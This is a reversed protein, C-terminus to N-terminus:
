SPNQTPEEAEAAARQAEYGAVRESASVFWEDPRPLSDGRLYASLISIGEVATNVKWILRARTRVAGSTWRAHYIRFVANMRDRLEANPVLLITLEVDVVVQSDNVGEDPYEDMAALLGRHLSILENLAKKAFELGQVEHREQKAIKAQTRQQIYAGVMTLVAGVGVGTLGIWGATVEPSVPLDQRDPTM